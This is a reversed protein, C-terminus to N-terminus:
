HNTGYSTCFFLYLYNGIGAAGGAVLFEYRTKATYTPRLSRHINKNIVEISARFDREKLPIAIQAIDVTKVSQAVSLIRTLAQDFSEADAATVVLSLFTV